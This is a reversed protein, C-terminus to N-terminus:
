MVQTITSASVGAPIALAAVAAGLMLLKRVTWEGEAISTGAQLSECTRRTTLSRSRHRAGCERGGHVIVVLLVVTGPLRQRAHCSHCPNANTRTRELTRDGLPNREVM